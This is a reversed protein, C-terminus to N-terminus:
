LPPCLMTFSAKTRPLDCFQGWNENFLAQFTAAQSTSDSGITRRVRQKDDGASLQHEQFLRSIQRAFNQANDYAQEADADTHKALDNTFQAKSMRVIDFVSEFGMRQMAASFDLKISDESETSHVLRHLLSDNTVDM